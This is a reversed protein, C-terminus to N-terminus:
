KAQCSIDVIFVTVVNNLHARNECAIYDLLFFSGFKFLSHAHYQCQNYKDLSPQKRFDYYCIYM